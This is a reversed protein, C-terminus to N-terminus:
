GPILIKKWVPSSLGLDGQDAEVFQPNPAVSTAM